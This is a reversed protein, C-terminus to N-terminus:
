RVCDGDVVDTNEEEKQEGVRNVRRILEYEVVEEARKNWAELVDDVARASRSKRGYDALDVRPSRAGCALCRVYCVKASIGGVFGRQATEIYPRGGCFPCSKVIM